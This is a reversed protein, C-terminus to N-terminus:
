AERVRSTPLAEAAGNGEALLLEDRRLSSRVAKSPWWGSEIMSRALELRARIVQECDSLADSRQRSASAARLRAAFAAIVDLGHNPQATEAQQWLAASFASPTASTMTSM